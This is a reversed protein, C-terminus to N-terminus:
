ETGTKLEVSIVKPWIYSFLWNVFFYVVLLVIIRADSDYGSMEVLQKGALMLLILTTLFVAFWISKSKQSSVCLSGCNKCKVESLGFRKLPLLKNVDSTSILANQCKPCLINM